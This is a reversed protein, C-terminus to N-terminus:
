DLYDSRLPERDSSVRPLCCEVDAFLPGAQVSGDGPRPASDNGQLKSRWLVIAMAALWCCWSVYGAFNTLRAIDLGLPIVVGTAILAAAAYGLYTMWRPASARTVARVVLVTFVATLAYGITEGIITGLWTHLVQFRHYADQTRAPVLANDSIGPVFLVWRSLGTVQVFAATIGTATIWKGIRAGGLRGLGVSAPALLAASLALVAFWASIAIDHQRYLALIDDAPSRLIKPYNFVSGLAAFGASALIATSAMTVATLRRALIINMLPEKGRM